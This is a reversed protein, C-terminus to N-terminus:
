AHRNLHWLNPEHLIDGLFQLSKINRIKDPTPMHKKLFQKPM